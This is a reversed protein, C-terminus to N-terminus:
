YRRKDCASCNSRNQRGWFFHQWRTNKGSAFPILLLSSVALIIFLMLLLMGLRGIWLFDNWSNLRGWNVGRGV